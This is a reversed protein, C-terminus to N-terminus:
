LFFQPGNSHETGTKEQNDNRFAVQESSNDDKKTQKLTTDDDKVANMIHFMVKANNWIPKIQYFIPIAQNIVGLTKQANNLLNGWDFNKRGVGNMFSTQNRGRFLGRKGMGLFGRGMRNPNGFSSYGMNFNGYPSFDYDQYM